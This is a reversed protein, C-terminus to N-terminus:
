VSRVEELIALWTPLWAAVSYHTQCFARGRSGLQARLARDACLEALAHAWEDPTSAARGAGSRELIDRNVGLPSAIVPLGALEPRRLIEVAALFQDMDVHLVWLAM